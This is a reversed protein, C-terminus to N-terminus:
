KRESQQVLKQGEDHKDVADAITMVQAQWPVQWDEYEPPHVTVPAIQELDARAQDDVKNNVAIIKTPDTSAVQEIVNATFGKATGYITPPRADGLEDMAWPGVGSPHGDGKAGWPA